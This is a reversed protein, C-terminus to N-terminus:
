NLRDPSAIGARVQALQEEKQKRFGYEVLRALDAWMTESGMIAVVITQGDRTFQGVYTQRAANTFGTKGGVAGDVRWLAKNHNRLVKGWSTRIARERMRRAFEEHQMAFRLLHALDRATSQQGEATLGSATRCITNQAGWMRASLTMLQAFKDESGAIKEGLAVAADNASALLVANILDNARYDKGPDLYIKSCPMDAAHRSVSIVDDSRLSKLAIMATIIKITSAPQRPNDPDRAFLTRGNKADMVLASKSSITRELDSLQQPAATVSRRTGSQKKASRKPKAPKAKAVAAAPAAKAQITGTKKAATATKKAPPKGAAATTKKAAPKKAVKAGATKGATAATQPAIAPKKIKAATSPVAAPTAAALPSASLHFLSFCALLVLAFSSFRHM